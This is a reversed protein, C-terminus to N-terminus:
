QRNKYMTQMANYTQVVSGLFILSPTPAFNLAYNYEQKMYLNDIAQFIADQCFTAM